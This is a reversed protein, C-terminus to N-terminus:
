VTMDIYEVGKAVHNGYCIKM